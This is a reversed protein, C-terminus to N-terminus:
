AYRHERAAAIALTRSEAAQQERRALQFAIIGGTVGSILLIGSLLLLLRRKTKNRISM